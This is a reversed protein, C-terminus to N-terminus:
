HLHTEKEYKTARFDPTYTRKLRVLGPEPSPLGQSSYRTANPRARPCAASSPRTWPPRHHAKLVTGPTLAAGASGGAHSAEAGRGSRAKPADGHSRAPRQHNVPSGLRPPLTSSHERHPSLGAHGGHPRPVATGERGGGAHVWGGAGHRQDDTRASMATDYGRETQRPSRPTGKTPEPGRATAPSGHSRHIVQKGESSLPVGCKVKSSSFTPVSPEGTSRPDLHRLRTERWAEIHGASGGPPVPPTTPLGAQPPRLRWAQTGGGAPLGEGDLAEAPPELPQADVESQEHPEEEQGGGGDDQGGNVLEIDGFGDTLEIHTVM